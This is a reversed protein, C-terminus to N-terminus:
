GYLREWKALKKIVVEMIQEKTVNPNDIYIMDVACLMVDVSEGLIGDPGNPDDVLTYSVEDRLEDVESDLHDMVTRLTRGNKIDRCSELITEVIDKSM